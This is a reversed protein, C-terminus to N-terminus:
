PDICSEPSLADRRLPTKMAVLGLDTYLYPTIATSHSLDPNADHSHILLEAWGDHDADFENLVTQFDLTDGLTGGADGQRLSTSWSSDSSLLIPAPPAALSDTKSSDAKPTDAKFWATMLFVTADALKWRARAFLRPAGDPTLRFARLDYDLKGEDRLLGQDAHIWEKLRPRAGGVPFEGASEGPTGANALLRADIRSAEHMMRENLQQEIQKAAAPLPKWGILEGIQSAVPPDASEVASRRVSFYERRSAAFAAQQDPPVSALFGLALSCGLPAVIVRDISVPITLDPSVNLTWQEGPQTQQVIKPFFHLSQSDPEWLDQLGALPAAPQPSAPLRTPTGSTRSFPSGSFRAETDTSVIFVVHTRDYRAAVFAPGAANLRSEGTPQAKAQAEAEAARAKEEALRRVGERQIKIFLSPEGPLRQRMSWRFASIIILLYLGVAIAVWKRNKRRM